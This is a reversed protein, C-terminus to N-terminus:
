ENEFGGEGCDALAKRFEIVRKDHTVMPFRKEIPLGAERVAELKRLRDSAKMCDLRHGPYKTEAEAWEELREILKNTM